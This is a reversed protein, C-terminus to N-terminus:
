GAARREELHGALFEALRLAEEPALRFTGVCLDSQWLSLVAVDRDPHWSARLGRRGDSFLARRPPTRRDDM